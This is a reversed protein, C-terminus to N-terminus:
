VLADIYPDQASEPPTDSICPSPSSKCNQLHFQCVFYSLGVSSIISQLSLHLLIQQGMRMIARCLLGLVV